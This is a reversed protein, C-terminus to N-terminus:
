VNVKRAYNRFEEENLIRQAEVDSNAALEPHKEQIKRRAREVTEYPPFGYKKRNLLFEFVSIENMTYGSKNAIKKCVMYYLYDDSNRAQSDDQLIRKVLQSTKEINCAM